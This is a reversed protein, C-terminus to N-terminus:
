VAPSRPSRTSSAAAGRVQELMEVFAERAGLLPAVLLFVALLYVGLITLVGGIGRAWGGDVITAIAALTMVLLAIRQVALVDVDLFGLRVSCSLRAGAAVDQVSGRAIPDYWYRNGPTLPSRQMRISFADGNTAVYWRVVGFRRGDPGVESERWEKGRGALRGLVREASEPFLMEIKSSLM